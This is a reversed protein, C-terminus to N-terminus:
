GHTGEEKPMAPRSPDKSHADALGAPGNAKAIRQEYEEYSESPEFQPPPKCDHHDGCCPNLNCRETM